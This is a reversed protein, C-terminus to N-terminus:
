VESPLMTKTLSIYIGITKVTADIPEFHFAHKRRRPKSYHPGALTYNEVVGIPLELSPFYAVWASVARSVIPRPDTQTPM